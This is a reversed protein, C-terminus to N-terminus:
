ATIQKIVRHASELAGQMWGHFISTHEGAFYINGEPKTIIHKYKMIQGVTYYATASRVYKDKSWCKVTGGEYYKRIGPFINEVHNLTLNIQEDEDLNDFNNMDTFKHYVEVIGRPGEQEFTPHWIETPYNTVAFGNLNNDLWYRKNVQLFVRALAGYTIKNIAEKLVPSLGPEVKIERMVPFPITCIVKDAKLSVVNGGRRFYVTCGEAAQSINFVEAGYIIENRLKDAFARPILDNGGKVKSRFKEKSFYFMDAATDLLSPQKGGNWGLDLITDISRSYGNEVIYDTLTMEDYKKLSADPWGPALPDGTENILKGLVKSGFESITMDKEDKKLDLPFDGFKLDRGPKYIIKKQNVYDIYSLDKQADPYFPVLDLNFEHVYKLTWDHNDPIRAAGADAYLGDSFQRFTVVRGGARLQAELIKIDYGLKRLEYGACMGALGAGLILVKEGKGKKIHKIESAKLYPINFLPSSLIAATSLASKKIFDKRNIKKM